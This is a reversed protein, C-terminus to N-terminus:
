SASGVISWIGSVALTVLIGFALRILWTIRGDLGSFQDKIEGRLSSFNNEMATMRQDLLAIRVVHDNDSTM